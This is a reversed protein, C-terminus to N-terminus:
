IQCRRGAQREQGLGPVHSDQHGQTHLVVPKQHRTVADDGTSRRDGPPRVFDLAAERAEGKCHACCTPASRSRRAPLGRM